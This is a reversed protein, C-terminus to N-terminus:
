ENFEGSLKSNVRVMTVVDDKLWFEIEKGTYNYEKYDRDNVDLILEPFISNLEIDTLGVPKIGELTVEQSTINIGWLKFKEDPNFYLELGMNHYLWIESSVGDAGGENNIEDPFGFIERAESLLAGFSIADLGKLPEINM